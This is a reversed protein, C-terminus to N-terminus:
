AIEVKTNECFMEEDYNTYVELVAPDFIWKASMFSVFIDKNINVLKEHLKILHKRQIVGKKEVESNSFSKM